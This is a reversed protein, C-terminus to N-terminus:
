FLLFLFQQLGTKLAKIARYLHSEVTKEPMHLQSAIEKASQGNEKSLKYILQPKEPLSSVLKALRDMLEEFELQEQTSNDLDSQTTQYSKMRQDGRKQRLRFDIIKYKLAAALYTSFKFELHLSERRVWVNLFIEQIIEEALEVSNVRNAAVFVLKDWYRNYLETFAGEHSMKLLEILQEDNYTKYSDM